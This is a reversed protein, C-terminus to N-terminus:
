AEEEVEEDVEDNDFEPPDEGAHIPFYPYANMFAEFEMEGFDDEEYEISETKIGFAPCQIVERPELDLGALSPDDDYVWIEAADWMAVGQMMGGDTMVGMTILPSEADEDDPDHYATMGSFEIGPMSKGHGQQIVGSDAANAEKDEIDNTFEVGAYMYGVPERTEDESDFDYVRILEWYEGSLLNSYTRTNTASM